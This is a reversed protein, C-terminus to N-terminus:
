VQVEYEEAVMQVTIDDKPCAIAIDDPRMVVYITGQAQVAVSPALGTLTLAGVSMEVAGVSLGTETGTITLTGVPIPIASSLGLTPALGTIALSGASSQLGVALFPSGATLTLTASPPALSIASLVTPTQGTVALTGVSSTVVLAVPTTTGSVAVAGAPVGLFQGISPIPAQGTVTVAGAAQTVVWALASPAQGTLTLSGMGSTLLAGTFIAPQTGSLTLAGNTSPLVHALDSSSGTVAIAGAPPSLTAGVFMAPSLGTVTLSGVTGANVAALSSTAGALTLAGSGLFTPADILRTAAAGSLTLAGAPVPQVLALASGQGAITLAGASQAQVFAVAPSAGTAAMTAPAMPQVLALAPTRGTVTLAGADTGLFFVGDLLNGTVAVAGVPIEITTGSGAGVSVTPAAGTVDVSGTTPGQFGVGVSQGTLGLAGATLGFVLAISAAVSTVSLTGVPVAPAIEPSITWTISYSTGDTQAWTLTGTAASGTQAKHGFINACDSGGTSQKETTTLAGLTAFSLSTVADDNNYNHVSACVMSDSGSPTFSAHSEDASANPEVAINAYPVTAKSAGSFAKLVCSVSGVANNVTVTKGATASTARKYWLTAKHDTSNGIKAWANGGTDNDTVSLTGAGTSDRSTVTLFLVDDTAVAADVTVSCSTTPNGTPIAASGRLAVAM